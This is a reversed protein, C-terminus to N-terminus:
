SFFLRGLNLKFLEMANTRGMRHRDAEELETGDFCSVADITEELPYDVSLMIREVGMESIACRLANDSFNGSTTLHFNSRLYGSMEKELSYGRPSKRLRHDLRWMDFPIREGLHGLIINLNPFEDFLGSGILRLAHVSTEVAFGWAASILWRHGEYAQARAAPPTRPHLYLPVDLEAVEAWFPRYEPLDYYVASDEVERQTYGNVMAGKFGLERVCRQLELIAAEPNQMPLTAFGAFRDPHRSIHGALADNAQRAASKAEQLEIMEQVGPMFSLIALEFGHRDMDALRLEGVDLMRRRVDSWDVSQGIFQAGKDLAAELAFHEEIAIKGQIPGTEKEM